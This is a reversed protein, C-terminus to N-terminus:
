RIGAAISDRHLKVNPVSLAAPTPRRGARTSAIIFNTAHSHSSASPMDRGADHTRGIWSAGILAEVTLAMLGTGIWGSAVLRSKGRFRGMLRSNAAIMMAMIPVAVIGDLVVGWVLMHIADIGTFGLGIAAAAAIITHFGVADPAQAELTAAMQVGRIRRRRSGVPGM